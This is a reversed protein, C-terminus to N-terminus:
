KSRRIHGTVGWGTSGVRVYLGALHMPKRYSKGALRRRTPSADERESVYVPQFDFKGGKEM